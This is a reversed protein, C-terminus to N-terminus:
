RRAHVRGWTPRASDSGWVDPVVDIAALVEPSALLHGDHGVEAAANGDADDWRQYRKRVPGRVFGAEALAQEHNM